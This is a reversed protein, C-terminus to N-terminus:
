LFFFNGLKKKNNGGLFTDCNEVSYLWFFFKYGLYKNNRSSLEDKKVYFFFVSSQIKKRQKFYVM